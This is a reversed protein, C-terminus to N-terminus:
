LHGSLTFLREGTDPDSLVREMAKVAVTCSSQALFLPFKCSRQALHIELPESGSFKCLNSCRIELTM